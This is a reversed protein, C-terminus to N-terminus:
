QKLRSNFNSLVYEYLQITEAANQKWSFHAARALGNHVLQQQLKDNNMLQLIADAISKPDTPNIFLAADAAVEPMSSTNSAIVPVGCKMAELMPIGFSERLSPYLFVKAQNLIVPLEQNPVYPLIQIHQILENAKISSLLSQIYQLNIDPMVLKFHLNGAQKLLHMAKLVGIVNKKPDTNGIFFVFQDPLNYKKASSNLQVQNNIRFFHAGVGNYICRVFNSEFKFFADINKKEFNSVTIIGVAKRVIKPVLWARYRNGFRQYFSTSSGTKNELYIIDHLTVLLPVSVFIPATNATCHLLNVKYKKVAWPLILQEWIPYPANPLTVIKIGSIGSLCKNDSGKKVFVVFELETECTRLHRILELAVIDMGHKKERFLRQAEIGVRM